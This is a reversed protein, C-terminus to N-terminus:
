EEEYVFGKQYLKEKIRYELENGVYKKSLKKYWKQYEKRALDQNNSFHYADIVNSILSFEYGMTKLDEVIKQKLVLGGRSHYTKIGKEIIKAIKEKQIEETFVELEEYIISSDIKKAILENMIRIPGHMTTDMQIHIYSRAYQQDDLYGQKALLNIAKEILDEPYEKHELYEKLEYTSKYKKKIINLAVYYVDYEMNKDQIMTLDQDLIEKKLLLDFQLIVEEYFLFNRGDDMTVLYKGNREKKYKLIKMDDGLEIIVFFLSRKYM